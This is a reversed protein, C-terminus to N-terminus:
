KQNDAEPPKPLASLWETLAKFMEAFRMDENILLKSYKALANDDLEESLKPLNFDYESIIKPGVDFAPDSLLLKMEQKKQSMQSYIEKRIDSIMAESKQDVEPLNRKIERSIKNGSEKGGMVEAIGSAMSDTMNVIIQTFAGMMTSMLIISTNAISNIIINERNEKLLTKDVKSIPGKKSPVKKEHNRM